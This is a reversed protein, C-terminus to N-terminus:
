KAKATMLKQKCMGTGADRLCRACQQTVLGARRRHRGLGSSLSSVRCFSAAAAAGCRSVPLVECFCFRFTSRLISSSSLSPVVSIALETCTGAPQMRTQLAVTM